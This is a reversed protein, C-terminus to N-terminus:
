EGKRCAGRKNELSVISERWLGYAPPGLRAEDSQIGAEEEDRTLVVPIPKPPVAYGNSCLSDPLNSATERTLFGPQFFLICLRIFSYCFVCAAILITLLLVITLEGRHINGTLALGM